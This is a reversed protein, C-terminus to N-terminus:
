SMDAGFIVNKGFSDNRSSFSGQIDFTIEYWSYSNKGPDANKNLKLQKM